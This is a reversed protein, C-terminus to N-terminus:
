NRLEWELRAKFRNAEPSSPVKWTKLIEESLAKSDILRLGLYFKSEAERLKLDAIRSLADALMERDSKPSHYAPSKKWNPCLENLKVFDRSDKSNSYVWELRACDRRLPDKFLLKRELVKAAWLKKEASVPRSKFFDIDTKGEWPFLGEELKKVAAGGALAYSVTSSYATFFKLVHPFNKLSLTQVFAAADDLTNDKDESQLAVAFGELYFSDLYSILPAKLQGHVLHTLEHPLLESIPVVHSLHMSKQIFNGIQTERAGIWHAKTDDSDYIYINFHLNPNLVASKPLRSRIEELNFAFERAWDRASFQSAKESELRVEIPGFSASERFHNKLAGSFLVPSPTALGAFAALAFFGCTMWLASRYNILTLGIVTLVALRFYYPELSIIPDISVTGPIIGWIPDFFVLSSSFLYKVLSLFASLLAFLYFKKIQKGSLNWLLAIFILSINWHLLSLKLYFGLDANIFFHESVALGAPLIFLISFLLKENKIWKALLPYLLVLFLNAVFLFEWSQFM